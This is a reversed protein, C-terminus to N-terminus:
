CGLPGRRVDLLQHLALFEEDLRLKITLTDLHM